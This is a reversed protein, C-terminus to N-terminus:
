PVHFWLSKNILYTLLWQRSVSCILDFAFVKDGALEQAQEKTLPEVVSADNGGDNSDSSVSQGMINRLSGALLTWFSTMMILCVSSVNFNVRPDGIYPYWGIPSFSQLYHIFLNKNLLTTKLGSIYRSKPHRPMWIFGAPIWIMRAPNRGFGLDLLTCRPSIWISKLTM